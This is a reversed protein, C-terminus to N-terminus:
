LSPSTTKQDHLPILLTSSTSSGNSTIETINYPVTVKLIAYSTGSKKEVPNQIKFIGYINNKEFAFETSTNQSATKIDFNSQILEKKYYNIMFDSDAAVDKWEILITTGYNKSDYQAENWIRKIINSYYDLRSTSSSKKELLPTEFLPALLINPFFLALEISRKEYKQPIITIKEIADPDYIPITSPLYDPITKSTKPGSGLFLKIIILIILIFFVLCGCSTVCSRKILSGKKSLEELPPDKIEVNDILDAPPRM